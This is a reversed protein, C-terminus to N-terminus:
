QWRLVKEYYTDWREPDFVEDASFRTVLGTHPVNEISHTYRPPIDEVTFAETDKHRQPEAKSTKPEAPSLVAQVV